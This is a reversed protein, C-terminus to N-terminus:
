SNKLTKIIKDSLQEMRRSEFISAEHDYGLLHLFGHVTMLSVQSSLDSRCELAKKKLVAPCLFIDGLEMIVNGGPMAVNDMLPFSLVDTPGSKKRAKNLQAMRSTNVLSISLGVNEIHPIAVKAATKIIRLFFLRNLKKHGTLNRFNFEIM